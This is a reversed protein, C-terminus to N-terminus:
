RKNLDIVTIVLMNNEDFSVAIRLQKGDITKGRISYNWSKFEEKYEDKRSEHWGTTLVQIIDSISINRQHRREIAHPLIIFEGRKAKVVIIDMVNKMKLTRKM